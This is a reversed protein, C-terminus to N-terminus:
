RVRAVVARGRTLSSQVDRSIAKLADGSYATRYYGRGGANAFVWPACTDGLTFTQTTETMLVCSPAVANPSKLCVPIQWRERGPSSSGDLLFRGQHLTVSARNNACATTVDLQPVGPQLVFTGMVRDVPKGSAATSPPSSIRRRRTRTSTSRWTRTSAGASHTRASTRSSWGCSPHARRTCIPDFSRSSRRRRTSTVHIPHTSKLSDLGLATQNELAENVDMHWDSNMSAAPRSAMWTAFGENLWLDDWWQMTVLDGFWMHAMEHSLISVITKRTNLSASASDALLDTERYFIAAINEMAGAAFDPVAVVDLKEFPYKITHYRNLYALIQEASELAIQGLAKKDPTACIRIPIGDSAGSLCEFDGIALAVLYPSMKATTSFTMTHQDPQPGPTDSVMRGNAIAVDGRAAVVTVAFTAKFAPEDFCPFARRADTSEFQTVAYSRNRGKSQYLGRLQQNLAAQYEIDIRARGAPIPRALTLTATQADANLAVQAKQTQGGASISASTVDLEVANLRIESTPQAVRVDIGTKGTFRAKALDLTFTLDYHDPSVGTPLRQARLDGALFAWATLTLIFTKSTM